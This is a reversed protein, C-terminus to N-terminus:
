TASREPNQLGRIKGVGAYQASKGENATGLGRGTETTSKQNSGNKSQQNDLWHWEFGTWNSKIAARVGVLARAPQESLTELILSAAYETMPARKKVRHKIFERWESEFGNVSLLKHPISSANSTEHKLCHKDRTKDKDQVTSKREKTREKKWRAAAAKKARDAFVSHYGNHETWGHLKMEDMFRAQQLAELMRCADGVYGIALALETASYDSFDGDPQKEAAYCWLKPPVWLAAEGIVSQLRLTKRHGWFSTRLRVYLNM